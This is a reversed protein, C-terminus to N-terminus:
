GRRTRFKQAGIPRFDGESAIPLELYSEELYVTNKGNEGPNGDWIWLFVIGEEGNPLFPVGASMTCFHLKIFHLNAFCILWVKESNM